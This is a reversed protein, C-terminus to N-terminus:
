NGLGIGSPTASRTPEVPFNLTRCLPKAGEIVRDPDVATHSLGYGGWPSRGPVHRTGYPRRETIIPAGAVQMSRPYYEAIWMKAAKSLSDKDMMRPRSPVIPLERWDPLAHDHWMEVADNESDTIGNWECPECIAQYMLEGVCTCSEHKDAHKWPECRLDTTYLVFGHGAVRGSEPVTISRRWMRSNVHTQDQTPLFQWHKFAADIESPPYYATTFYLPAGTWEPAAQVAADHLMGEIDFALQADNV